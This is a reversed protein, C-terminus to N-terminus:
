DTPLDAWNPAIAGLRDRLQTSPGGIHGMQAVSLGRLRKAFDAGVDSVRGSGVFLVLQFGEDGGAAQLLELAAELALGAAKEHWGHPQIQPLDPSGLWGAQAFGTGAEDGELWYLRPRGSPENMQFDSQMLLGILEVVITTASASPEVVLAVRGRQASATPVALLQRLLHESRTQWPLKPDPLLLRPLDAGFTGGALAALREDSLLPGTIPVLQAPGAPPLAMGIKEALARGRGFNPADGLVISLDAMAQEPQDDVRLCAREFRLRLSAPPQASELGADLTAIAGDRNGCRAQAAALLIRAETHAPFEELIAEACAAAIPFRGERLHVTADDFALEVADADLGLGRERQRAAEVPLGLLAFVEALEDHWYRFYPHLAIARLYADRAAEYRGLRRHLAAARVWLDADFPDLELLEACRAAAEAYDGADLHLALLNRGAPTLARSGNWAERWLLAAADPNGAAYAQVGANFAAVADREADRLYLTIPEM